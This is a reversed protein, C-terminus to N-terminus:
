VAAGIVGQAILAEIDAADYGCERLVDRSHEGLLPPPRDPHQEISGFRIPAGVARRITPPYLPGPAFFDVDVLHPDDPLDELSAIKSCPVDLVTLRDLWAQTTRTPMAESVIQYLQSLNAQRQAPDRFWDAAIVDARGVETLFAQWQPGTYPLVAIWGDATRHPRRDPYFLRPYGMDGTSGTTAGALHENLLTAVAVEFMPVEVDIPGVAGRAKAYLAALVGHVAHLAGLKDALITPIFAPDGGTGLSLGALGSAAQVIDDFAPRNRYRGRQGFGIAACYVIDPNAARATAFDIGARQAADVRMNHLLVDSRAILRRVVDQGRPSKLDLALGRKNRNNNVFLAGSGDAMPYSTRSIDGNLPEIKIVNAGLDALIQGAFPGMVVSGFELITVEDLLPYMPHVATEIQDRATQAAGQDM